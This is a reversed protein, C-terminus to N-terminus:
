DINLKTHNKKKHLELMTCISVCVCVCMSKRYLHSYKRRKRKENLLINQIKTRKIAVNLKIKSDTLTYSSVKM